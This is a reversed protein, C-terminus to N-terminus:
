TTLYGSEGSLRLLVLPSTCPLSHGVEGQVLGKLKLVQVDLASLPLRSGSGCRPFSCTRLTVRSRRKGLVSMLVVAELARRLGDGPKAVKTKAPDKYIPSESSSHTM